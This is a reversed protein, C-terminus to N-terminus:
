GSAVQSDIFYKPAPWLIFVLAQWFSEAFTNVMMM